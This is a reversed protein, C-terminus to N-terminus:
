WGRAVWQDLHPAEHGITSSAGHGPHVVTDPSLAFLRARISRIITEFDSFPWGTLGPGGPFLTDGTLVHGGARLCIGGPTHGPTHLVTLELGGARLVDGHALGTDVTGDWLPM